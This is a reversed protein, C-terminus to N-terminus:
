KNIWTSYSYLDYEELIHDVYIQSFCRLSLIAYEAEGRVESDENQLFSKILELGKEKAIKQEDLLFVSLIRLARCKVYSDVNEIMIEIQEFIDKSLSKDKVDRGRVIDDLLIAIALDRNGDEYKFFPIIQELKEKRTLKSSKFNVFNNMPTMM